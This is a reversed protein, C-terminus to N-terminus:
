SGSGSGSGGNGTTGFNTSFFNSFASNIQGLRGQNGQSSYFSFTNAVSTSGNAYSFVTITTLATDASQPSRNGSNQRFAGTRHLSQVFQNVQSASLQVTDLCNGKCGTNGTGDANSQSWTALGNDYVVLTSVPSSSSM